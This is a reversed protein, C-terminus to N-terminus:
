RKSRHGTLRSLWIHDVLVLIAAAATVIAITPGVSLQSPELKPMVLANGLLAILNNWLWPLGGTWWLVAGGSALMLLATVCVTAFWIRDRRRELEEAKLQVRMMTTYVFNSPLAPGSEVRREIARSLMDDNKKM